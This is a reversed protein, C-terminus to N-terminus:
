SKRRYVYVYAEEVAETIDPVLAVKNDNYLIWQNEKKIYSVYHGCQASTGKHSILAFLEYDAPRTDIEDPSSSGMEVDDSGPPHSFLWDVAREM